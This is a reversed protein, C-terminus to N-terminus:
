HGWLFHYHLHGHPYFPDGYPYGNYPEPWLYIEEIRFVPYRYPREGLARTQEGALAATLTVLRGEDYIAPDLYRSSEALFRGGAEDPYRPRDGGGLSYRLIELVSGERTARNGVIEGGLLLVEGEHAPPEAKAQAYSLDRNVARLAEGSLVHGCGAVLATLLVLLFILSRRM